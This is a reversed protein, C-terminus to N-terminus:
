SNMMRVFYYIPTTKRTKYVCLFRDHSRSEPTSAVNMVTATLLYFHLAELSTTASTARIDLIEILTRPPSYLRSNTHFLLLTVIEWYRKSM